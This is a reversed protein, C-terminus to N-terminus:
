HEGHDERLGRPKRLPSASPLPRRTVCKSPVYFLLLSDTLRRSNKLCSHQRSTWLRCVPAGLYLSILSPPRLGRPRPLAAHLHIRGGGAHPGGSSRGQCASPTRPESFDPFGQEPCPSAGPTPPSGLEVTVAVWHHWSSGAVIEVQDSAM